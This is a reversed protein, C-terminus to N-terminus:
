PPPFRLCRLEEATGEGRPRLGHRCLGPDIGWMVVPMGEAAADADPEYRGGPRGAPPPGADHARPRCGTGAACRPNGRGCDRCRRTPRSSHPARVIGAREEMAGRSSSHQSSEPGASPEAIGQATRGATDACCPPLSLLTVVLVVGAGIGTMALVSAWDVTVATDTMKLLVAGLTLGVVAALLLGQGITGGM